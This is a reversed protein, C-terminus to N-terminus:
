IHAIHIIFYLFYKREFDQTEELLRLKWRITVFHNLLVVFETSINGKRFIRIIRLKWLWKSSYYVKLLMTHFAYLGNKFYPNYYYYIIYGSLELDRFYKIYYMKYNEQCMKSNVLLKGGSYGRLLMEPDEYDTINENWIVKWWCTLNLCQLATPHFFDSRM